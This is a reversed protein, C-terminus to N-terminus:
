TLLSGEGVNMKFYENYCPSKELHTEKHERSPPAEAGEEAALAAPLPIANVVATSGVM